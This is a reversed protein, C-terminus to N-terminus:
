TRNHRLKSSREGTASLLLGGTTSRFGAGLRGGEASKDSPIRRFPGARDLGHHHAPTGHRSNPLTHSASGWLFPGTSAPGLSACASGAGHLQQRPGTLGDASGSCSGQTGSSSNALSRREKPCQNAVPNMDPQAANTARERWRLMVSRVLETELRQGVTSPVAGPRNVRAQGCRGSRGM